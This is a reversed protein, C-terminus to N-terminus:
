RYGHEAVGFAYALSAEIVNSNLSGKISKIRGAGIRLSMSRSLDIGAYVMPQVLGGGRTDVGGGGGAGILAEAGVYFRSFLPTEVGVGFMGAIYGGADGGWGSHAQGTLYLNPTVFRNVKLVNFQLDRVSGDRRQANQHSVGAIWDTRTTRVPASV